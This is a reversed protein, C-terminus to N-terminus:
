YVAGVSKRIKNKNQERGKLFKKQDKYEQFKGGIGRNQKKCGIM